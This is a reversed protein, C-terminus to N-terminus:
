EKIFKFNEIGSTKQIKLIYVGKTLNEVKIEAVSNSFNVDCSIIRGDLSVVRLQSAQNLENSKIFLKTSAPNPSISTKSTSNEEIGVTCSALQVDIRVSQKDAITQNTIRKPCYGDAEFVLTYTGAKIMRHYNGIPLSSYVFSNDMDHNEISVKAKIPNGTISDTIVGRFGYLVENWYNVLSPFNATWYYPMQSASPKKTNSIELTVERCNHYYNMYDQRDGFVQYWGAGNTVGPYVGDGTGTFYGDYNANKKATDAYEQSVMFWWDDDATLDYKCDWPFNALEIGGHFNASMVFDYKSAYAMFAETEAQWNNNDPHDGQVFDKYNRNLDVFSGNYRIALAVTSNGGRFTGDPNALPNIHIVTNNILNTTREDIGYNNLIYDAFRLLLVYGTLEDGHISSSYIFRPEDEAVNVNDSIILSILKRGSSLIGITDIKCITPFNEAFDYMLTEYATYVPYSDWVKTGNKTQGDWMKYDGPIESSHLENRWPINQAIFWEFEQQNAYAYVRGNVDVKDISLKKWVDVSHIDTKHFSIVVEGIKNLTENAKVIDQASVTNFVSFSILVLLFFFRLTKM